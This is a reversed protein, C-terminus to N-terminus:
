EDETSRDSEYVVTFPLTAVTSWQAEQSLHGREALARFAKAAPVVTLDGVVDDRVFFANVGRSDCGVLSYGKRAGLFELALLSAGHYFGSPHHSFREFAAEYPVTIAAEYGFTANYEIVVVRPKPSSLAEWLWYDNGDVDISLLDIEETYGAQRFLSDVNEATIWETRFTIRGSNTGLKRRYFEAAARTRRPDGDMLLGSWGFNLSLNATNCEIGNGIGFEAFRKTPCGVRNLLNLIIGDEGNQSYIREEWRDLGAWAIVNPHNGRELAILRRETQALRHVSARVDRLGAALGLPLIRSLRNLGFAVGRRKWNGQMM